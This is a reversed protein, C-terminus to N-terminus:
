LIQHDHDRNYNYNYEPYIGERAIPFTSGAFNSIPKYTGHNNTLTNDVAEEGGLKELYM